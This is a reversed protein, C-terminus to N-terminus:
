VETISPRIYILRVIRDPLVAAATLEASDVVLITPM